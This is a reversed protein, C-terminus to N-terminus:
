WWLNIIFIFYLEFSYFFSLSWLILVLVIYSRSQEVHTCVKRLIHTVQQRIRIVRKYPIVPLREANQMVSLRQANKCTFKDCWDTNILQKESIKLEKISQTYTYIHTHACVCITTNLRGFCIVFNKFVLITAKWKKLPFCPIFYGKLLQININNPLPCGLTSLISQWWTIRKQIFYVPTSFKRNGWMYLWIIM